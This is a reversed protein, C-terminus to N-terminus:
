KKGSLDNKVDMTRISELMYDSKGKEKLRKEVFDEITDKIIIMVPVGMIMGVPGFAAGGATVAFIIWFARAGVHSGVIKPDLFNADLQQIVLIIILAILGKVWGGTILTIIVIPVTAFIPGFYPIMNFVGLILGLLPAYPVQLISFAIIAIISVAFSDIMKGIFFATFTKNARSLFSLIYDSNTENALAVILRKARALLDEKDILMYISLIVATVASFISGATVVLVDVISKQVAYLLNGLVDMIESSISEIYAVLTAFSESEINIGMSTLYELGRNFLQNTEVETSPFLDIIGSVSVYIVPILFGIALIIAIIFISFTVLISWGRSLKTKKDITRVVADLVYAVAIAYLLPKVMIGVMLHFSESTALIFLIIGVLIISIIWKASKKNFIEGM